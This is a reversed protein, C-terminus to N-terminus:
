RATVAEPDVRGSVTVGLISAVKRIDDDMTSLLEDVSRFTLMPRIRAVFSVAVEEGYINLDHRGLVHAEVTHKDGDFQPNMGVSIAAPLFVHAPADKVRMSLWGAYVGDAPVVGEISASLNATPFGIKRGRKFGHEVIGRIRHPRGLVRAAGAVDGEALLERIWTSSWRRGEASELDTVAKVAFGLEGGLTRLTDLDGANDAGFLVDEGVVVEQAGLCDVLVRQAFERPSMSYLSKDYTLVLTHTIGQGALADLRDQLTTILQLNREPHHVQVPHPYFTVVVPPLERAKAREICANLVKQHGVHVGDFNGITVVCRLDAPVEGLSRWVSMVM